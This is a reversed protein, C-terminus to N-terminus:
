YGQGRLDGYRDIKFSSGTRTIPTLNHSAEAPPALVPTSTITGATPSDNARVGPTPTGKRKKNTALAPTPGPAAAVPPPIKANHRSTPEATSAPTLDRMLPLKGTEGPNAVIEAANLTPNEPAPETAIKPHGAAPPPTSPHSAVEASKAPKKALKEPTEPTATPNALSATTAKSVGTKFLKAPPTVAHSHSNEFSDDDLAVKPSEGGPAPTPTAAVAVGKKGKRPKPTSSAAAIADALTTIKPAKGAPTPTPTPAPTAPATAAVPKSEHTTTSPSPTPTATVVRPAVTFASHSGQPPLPDVHAFTPASGAHPLPIIPSEVHPGAVVPPAVAPYTNIPMKVMSNPHSCARHEAIFENPTFYNSFDRLFSSRFMGIQINKRIELHLHAEYMGFNNGIRGIQQGRHVQEGEHVSFDLLHGYLSDCYKLEFGEYYAHRLIVVNGWGVHYNRAFTVFGNAIAYVPDGLDSDGGGLGNWDEGLHGNPRYGRAIYYGAGTGSPGVPLQFGDAARVVATDQAHLALSSVVFAIACLVTLRM